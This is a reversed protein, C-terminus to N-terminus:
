DDRTVRYITYYLAFMRQNTIRLLPYWTPHLSPIVLWEYYIARLSKTKEDFRMSIEFGKVSCFLMIEGNKM